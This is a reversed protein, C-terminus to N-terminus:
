ALYGEVRATIDDISAQSSGFAFSDIRAVGQREGDAVTVLDGYGVNRDWELGAGFQLSATFASRAALRALDGEAAALLQGDDGIKNNDYVREIRGFPSLQAAATTAAQIRRQAGQGDGLGYVTTAMESWDDEVEIEALAGNAESFIAPVAGNPWTRNLGRSTTWVRFELQVPNRTAVVDFGVWSGRQIATQHIEVLTKLARNFSFQKTQNPGLGDDAEVSFVVLGNPQLINRLTDTAATYNDRVVKRLLNATPTATLINVQSAEANYAAVRTDLIWTADVCTITMTKQAGRSRRLRRVVFWVTDGILRDERVIELATFPQFLAPEVQLPDLELTCEGIAHQRRAGRVSSYPLQRIPRLDQGLLSVGYPRAM